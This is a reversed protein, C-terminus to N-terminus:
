EPTQPRGKDAASAASAKEAALVIVAVQKVVRPDTIRRPLGQKAADREAAARAATAIDDPTM